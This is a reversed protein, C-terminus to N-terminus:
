GGAVRVLRPETLVVGSPGTGNRRRELVRELAADLGPDVIGVACGPAPDPRAGVVVCPVDLSYLGDHDAVVVAAGAEVLRGAAAQDWVPDRHSGDLAGPHTELSLTAGAAEATRRFTEVFPGVGPDLDPPLVVGLTASPAALLAADAAVQAWAEVDVTLVALNATVDPPVSDPAASDSPTSDPTTPDTGAPGITVFRFTPWTASARRVTDLAFPEAGQPPLVVVLDPFGGVADELAADLDLISDLEFRTVTLDGDDAAALADIAARGGAPRGPGDIVAVCFHTATACRASASLETTSSAGGHQGAVEPM